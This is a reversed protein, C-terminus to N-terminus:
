RTPADLHLWDAAGEAREYRWPGALHTLSCAMQSECLAKDGSSWLGM